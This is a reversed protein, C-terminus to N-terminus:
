SGNKQRRWKRCVSVATLLLGIGLLIIGASTYRIDGFGGMEPLRYQAMNGISFPNEDTGEGNIDPPPYDGASLLVNIEGKSTIEFRWQGRPLHYGPPAQTEAMQYTGPSLNEFIVLGTEGDSTSEGILQWGSGIFDESILGGPAQGEVEGTWLYLKFQAGGLPEGTFADTKYFSFDFPDTEERIVPNEAYVEGSDTGGDAFRWEAKATNVATEGAYKTVKATITVTVIERNGVGPIRWVITKDGSSYDTLPNGNEDWARVYALDAPLTDTITLDVTKGTTNEYTIEYTIEDGIKVASGDVGSKSNETVTKVLPPQTPLETIAAAQLSSLGGTSGTFGWWVMTGGFTSLISDVTYTQPVGGFTYDLTGGGSSNPTWKVTFKVWESTESFSFTNKHDSSYIVDATPVVLACHPASPDEMFTDKTKVNRYTDFEIVLSNRLYTGDPETIFNNEGWMEGTWKRGKYVGLGEGAGGKAALGGPANHMTFTMGDAIEGSKKEKHALHLYIETSFPLTLDLQNKAWMEGVMNTYDPTVVAVNKYVTDVYADDMINFTNTVDPGSPPEVVFGSGYAFTNIGESTVSSESVYFLNTVNSEPDEEYEIPDIIDRSAGAYRYGDIQPPTIKYKGGAFGNKIGSQAVTTETGSLIINVRATTQDASVNNVAANSYRACVTDNYNQNGNHAFLGFGHAGDPAIEREFLTIETEGNPVITVRFSTNSSEVRFHLNQTIDIIASDDGYYTELLTRSVYLSRIQGRETYSTETLESDSDSDPYGASLDFGADTDTEAAGISDGEVEDEDTGTNADVDTGQTNDTEIDNNGNDDASKLIFENYARIDMGNVYFLSFKTGRDADAATDAASSNQSDPTEIVIMYGTIKGDDSINSNIWFGTGSMCGPVSNLVVDFDLINPRYNNTFVADIFPLSDYGYFSVTGKNIVAHGPNGSWKYEFEIAEVYVPDYDYNEIVDLLGPIASDELQVAIVTGTLASFVVGATIIWTLILLIPKRKKAAYREHM